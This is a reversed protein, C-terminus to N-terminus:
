VKYGKSLAALVLRYSAETKNRKFGKKILRPLPNEVGKRLVDDPLPM